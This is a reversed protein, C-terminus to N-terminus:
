KGTLAAVMQGKFDPKGVCNIHGADAMDRTLIRFHYSPVFGRPEDGPVIKAFVLSVDGFSLEGAPGPPLPTANFM